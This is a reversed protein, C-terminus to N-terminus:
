LSFSGSCHSNLPPFLYCHGSFLVILFQSFPLLKSEGTMMSLLEKDESCTFLDSGLSSKFIISDLHQEGPSTFFSVQVGTVRSTGSKPLPVLIFTIMEYTRLLTHFHYTFPCMVLLNLFAKRLMSPSKIGIDTPGLAKLILPYDTLCSSAFFNLVIAEIWNNECILFHGYLCSLPKLSVHYVPNAKSRSPGIHSNLKM